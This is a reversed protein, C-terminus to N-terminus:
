QRTAAAGLLMKLFLFGMSTQFDGADFGLTQEVIRVFITNKISHSGRLTECHFPACWM